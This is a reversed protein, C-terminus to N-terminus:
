GKESFAKAKAELKKLENLEEQSIIQPVVGEVRIVDEADKFSNGNRKGRYDKSTLKNFVYM